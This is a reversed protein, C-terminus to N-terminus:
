PTGAPLPQEFALRRHLAPFRGYAGLFLLVAGALLSFIVNSMGFALVNLPTDLVLVNAMGSLLFAAGVTVTVTSAARGGRVAAGILVAGVVLSIVSLLGNSSLGLVHGGNTSFMALRNVLGLSGFAWVGGRVRGCRAPAM